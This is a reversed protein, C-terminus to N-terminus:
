HFPRYLYAVGNPTNVCKVPLVKYANLSLAYKIDDSIMPPIRENWILKDIIEQETFFRKHHRKLFCGIFYLTGLADKQFFLTDTDHQHKNYKGVLQNYRDHIDNLAQQLHTQSQTLKDVTAKEVTIENSKHSVNNRLGEIIGLQSDVTSEAAIVKDELSQIRVKYSIGYRSGTLLLYQM